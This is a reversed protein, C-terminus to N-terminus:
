LNIVTINLLVLHNPMAPIKELSPATVISLTIYTFVAQKPFVQYWDGKIYREM